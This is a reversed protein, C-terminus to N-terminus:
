QRGHSLQGQKTGVVPVQVHAIARV